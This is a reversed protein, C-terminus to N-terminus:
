QKSIYAPHAFPDDIKPTRLGKSSEAEIRLLLQTGNDKASSETKQTTAFVTDEGKLPVATM